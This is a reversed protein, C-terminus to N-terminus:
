NLITKSLQKNKTKKKKKKKKKKRVITLEMKSFVKKLAKGIIQDMESRHYFISFYIVFCNKLVSKKCHISKKVQELSSTKVSFFFSFFRTGDCTQSSIRQAKINTSNFFASLEVKM